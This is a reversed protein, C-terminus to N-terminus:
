HTDRFTEELHHKLEDADAAGRLRDALGAHLARGLSTLATLHQKKDPSCFSILLDVPDNASHGSAVPHALHTATVGVGLGGSEPRAHVLALGPAMVIYPGHTHLADVCAQPYTDAAVGLDVLLQASNRVAEHWDAAVVDARADVAVASM